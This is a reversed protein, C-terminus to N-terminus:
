RALPAAAPVETGLPGAPVEVRLRYGQGDLPGAHVWGGLRAAREALGALGAGGGSGNRGAAPGPMAPGDDVVQVSIRVQHARSHRLANTVGERVAWGFLERLEGPVQDVSMNVMFWAAVSTGDVTDTGYISSFLVYLLLPMALTFLYFRPVRFTRQIETRLYLLNM